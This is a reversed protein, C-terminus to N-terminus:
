NTQANIHHDTKKQLLTRKIPVGHAPLFLTCTTKLLKEWSQIVGEKDDAFVPFLVLPLQGFMADGVLAIQEGIILSMSGRSHGPTHILRAPFGYEGLDLEETVEIDVQCPEYSFDPVQHKDHMEVLKRTFANSGQPLPTDGARLFDAESQHAIVRPTLELRFAAANGVHDFHTHSLIMLDLRNIGMKKIKRLIAEREFKMSTDFLLHKDGCSLLYVNCRTSKLRRLLCDDGPMWTKM